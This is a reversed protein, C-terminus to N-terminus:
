KSCILSRYALSPLGNTCSGSCQRRRSDRNCVVEPASESLSAPAWVNIYVCPMCVVIISSLVHMAWSDAFFGRARSQVSRANCRQDSHCCCLMLPSVVLSTWRELLRRHCGSPPSPLRRTGTSTNTLMYDLPGDKYSFSARTGKIGLGRELAAWAIKILNM